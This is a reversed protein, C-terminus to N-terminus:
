RGSRKALVLSGRRKRGRGGGDRPWVLATAWQCLLGAGCVDDGAKGMEALGLGLERKKLWGGAAASCLLTGREGKRKAALLLENYLLHLFLFPPRLVSVV